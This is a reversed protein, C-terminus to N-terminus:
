THREARNSLENDGSRVEQQDALTPDTLGTGTIGLWSIDHGETRITADAVHLALQLAQIGDEGFATFTSPTRISEDDWRLEWTCGYSEAGRRPMGVLLRARERDIVLERDAIWAVDSEGPGRADDTM